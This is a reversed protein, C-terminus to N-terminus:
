YDHGRRPRKVHVIDLGDTAVTMPALAGNPSKTTQHVRVPTSIETMEGSPMEKTPDEFLCKAM